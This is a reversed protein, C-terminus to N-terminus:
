KRLFRRSRRMGGAQSRDYYGRVFLKAAHFADTKLLIDRPSFFCQGNPQVQHLNRTAKGPIGFRYVLTALLSPHLLADARDSLAPPHCGLFNFDRGKPM